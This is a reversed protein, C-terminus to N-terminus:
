GLGMEGSYLDRDGDGGGDSSAAEDWSIIEM